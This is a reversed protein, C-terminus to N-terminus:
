LKKFQSHLLTCNASGMCLHKFISFYFNLHVRTSWSIWHWFFFVLVFLLCFVFFGFCSGIGCIFTFVYFQHELLLFKWKHCVTKIDVADGSIVKGYKELHRSICYIQLHNSLDHHHTDVCEWPLFPWYLLNHYFNNRFLKCLYEHCWFSSLNSWSQHHHHLVALLTHCSRVFIQLESRSNLATRVM